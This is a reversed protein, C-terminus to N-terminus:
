RDERRKGGASAFHVEIQVRFSEVLVDDIRRELCAHRNRERWFVPGLVHAKRILLGRNAVQFHRALFAFCFAEKCEATARSAKGAIAIRVEKAFIPWIADHEANPGATMAQQKPSIRGRGGSMSTGETETAAISGFQELREGELSTAARPNSAAAASVGVIRELGTPIPLFIEVCVPRPSSQHVVGISRGVGPLAIQSLLESGRSRVHLSGKSAGRWDSLDEGGSM